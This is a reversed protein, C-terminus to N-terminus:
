KVTLIGTVAPIKPKGSTTYAKKYTNHFTEGETVITTSGGKSKKKQPTAYMDFIPRRRRRQGADAECTVNDGGDNAVVYAIHYPCEDDEIEGRVISYAEGIAPNADDGQSFESKRKKGTIRAEESINLNQNESHGFLRDNDNKLQKDGKARFAPSKEYSGRSLYEAFGLCDNQFVGNFEYVVFGDPTHGVIHFLHAPQPGQAGPAVQLQHTRAQDIRYLDNDSIKINHQIKYRQVVRQLPEVTQKMTGESVSSIGLAKAGMVDAEKELIADDNLAVPHKGELQKTPQVRGQKQQVVHWAEHPLHQEQGPALHIETGQAFAHAQLSSPKSSNYHVKVNDMAFGSLAEVGTKLPNPLGTNEKRQVSLTQQDTYANAMSQLQAVPLREAHNDALEQLRLQAATDQRNDAFSAESERRQIFGPQRKSMRSNEHSFSDHIYM